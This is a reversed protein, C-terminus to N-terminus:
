PRRWVTLDGRNAHLCKRQASTNEAFVWSSGSSSTMVTPAVAFHSHQEPRPGLTVASELRKTRSTNDGALPEEDSNYRRTTWGADM